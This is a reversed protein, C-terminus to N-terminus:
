APEKTKQKKTNTALQTTKQKNNTIMKTTKEKLPNQTKDM